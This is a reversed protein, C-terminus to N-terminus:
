NEKYKEQEKFDKILIEEFNSFVSDCFFCKSNIKKPQKMFCNNCYYNDAKKILTTVNM